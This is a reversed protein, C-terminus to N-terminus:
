LNRRKRTTTKYKKMFPRKKTKGGEVPLVMAQVVIGFPPNAMQTIPMADERFRQGRFIFDVRKNMDPIINKEVLHQLFDQKLNGLTHDVTIPLEYKINKYLITLTSSQVPEETSSPEPSPEADVEKTNVVEFLNHIAKETGPGCQTSSVANANPNDLMSLTTTANAMDM